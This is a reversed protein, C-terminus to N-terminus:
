YRATVGLTMLNVDASGTLNNDGVKSFREYEARAGLIENFRYQVGLGYQPRWKYGSTNSRTGFPVSGSDQTSIKAHIIGLKGFGSWRENLRLIGVGAVNWGNARATRQAYLPGMNATFGIQGVQMTGGVAYSYVSRYTAKGLDVYGGEVAWNPTFEHGLQLKFGGNGSSVDSSLESLTPVTVKMLRDNSARLDSADIRSRGISAVVYIDSAMELAQAAGSLTLLVAATAPLPIRILRKLNPNLKLNPNM